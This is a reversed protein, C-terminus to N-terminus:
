GALSPPSITVRRWPVLSHVQKGSSGLVGALSGIHRSLIAMCHACAQIDFFSGFSVPGPIPYMSCAPPLALLVSGKAFFGGAPSVHIFSAGCMMTKGAPFSSRLTYVVSGCVPPGHIM